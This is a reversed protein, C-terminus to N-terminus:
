TFYYSDPISVSVPFCDKGHQITQITEGSLEAGPTGDTEFKVTYVNIAFNATLNLDSTVNADIRPNDTSGDSWDVFHYGDAPVAYVAQGSAGHEVTQTVTQSEEGGELNVSGHEGATYTLTYTNIAFNATVTLASTVNADIRPNEIKGDSWDVFHYGDAPVAYVAQGTGGHEVTQTVTQSEEGGELKVFGHEDATYTLTYTNIAFNATVTFASTVNADIRPNDTKGDSWDIFHYGEAPIAYVAQGSKGYEITQIILDTEDEGELKVAGHFGAIYTLKFTEVTFNAILTMSQTVNQVTIPNESSYEKDNLTWNKFKYHQLPVATVPTCNGGHPVNQTTEGLLLSGETGDTKFEIKYNEASFVAILTMDQSVNKVTLPNDSSYDTGNFTWKVFSYGTPPIATVPTCDNGLKVTQLISGDIYAGATGDAQFKVTYTKGTFNAVLTLNRTVNKVILPNETSFGIGNETWNVFDHDTPAIATVPSTNEGVNVIQVTQGSLEAGITGDTEFTIKKPIACKAIYSANTTGATTFEGGVYLDGDPSVITTYVVPSAMFGSIGSGLASWESGNWQAIKRASTTDAYLFLGGVFINGITDASVTFAKDTLGNKLNEWKSGDWKAIRAAPISGAYTFSGCAFLNGSNDFCIHNVQENLGAGLTSWSTGDWKAIRQASVGGAFTFAGGAFINGQADSALTFVASNTGEGLASWTTGNWKAVYNVPAGGATTFLGGAYINGAKDETIAYVTYNMGADLASWTSGNWKAIRNLTTSGSYTFDGGAYLTGDKAVFLSYVTGNLGNGLPFWNTGNWKAIKSAPTGGASTFTGGAYINGFNDAALSYVASNTGSGLSYWSSDEIAFLQM